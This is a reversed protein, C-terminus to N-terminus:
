FKRKEIKDFICRKGNIDQLCSDTIIYDVERLENGNFYRVFLTDNSIVYTGKSKIVEKKEFHRREFKIKGSKTLSVQATYFGDGYYLLKSSGCSIFNIFIVVVIIHKMYNLKLGFLSKLNLLRIDKKM